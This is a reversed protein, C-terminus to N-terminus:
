PVAGTPESGAAPPTQAMAPPVDGAAPAQDAAQQAMLKRYAAVNRNHQALTEAFAHGGRGDAVFYLDDTAMPHLVAQIAALGPNCIPGPPLGKFLYTNYPNKVQLDSSSIERGLPGQGNAVVYIITPDSQLLMGRRLRNVFVGAIHARETPLSTEKEVISALVLAQDISDYPLDTAREPWLKALAQRMAEAMRNVMVVRTEGRTYFYTEPLLRGEGPLEPPPDGVLGEASAVLRMAQATTYGEPVTVRRAYTAGSILMRMVQEPSLGAGFKYEGARLPRGNAFLKVGVVFLRWDAVVGADQLERGIDTTHSGPDIVITADASLPGPSHWAKYFLLGAGASAALLLLVLLFFIRVLHRM